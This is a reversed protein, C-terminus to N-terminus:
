TGSAPATILHLQALDAPEDIDLALGPARLLRSSLKLAAADALHHALSHPGFRPRLRMPLDLVLANTGIGHRDPALVISGALGAQLLGQVEASRLCPLDASIVACRTAGRAALETLADELAPNMGSGADPLAVVDAPLAQADPTVVAIGDFAASDRLAALVQTFMSEILTLRAEASLAGALRQKGAARAKLPVLAWTSV